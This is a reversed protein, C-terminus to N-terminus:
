QKNEKKLRKKDAVKKLQKLNQKQCWVWARYFMPRIKEGIFTRIGEEITIAILFLSVLKNTIWVLIM